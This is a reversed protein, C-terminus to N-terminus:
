MLKLFERLALKDADSLDVGFQHGKNEVRDDCKMFMPSHPDSSTFHAIPTGAPVPLKIPGQGDERPALRIPRDPRSIKQPRSPEVAPNDSMMLEEFAMEFQRVRGRVTYDITGDPLYTLEGIANNHLFPAHAWVSLLSINRLYGPGGEIRREGWRTGGLGPVMRNLVRPVSGPSPRNKYTESAFEEWIHGQNHNDHLARCKNTGIVHFPVPEDNGLWDQGFVGNEAFQRPRLNGQADRAM